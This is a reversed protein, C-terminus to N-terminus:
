VLLNWHCQQMTCAIGWFGTFGIKALSAFANFGGESKRGEDRVGPKLRNHM